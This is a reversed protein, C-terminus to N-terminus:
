IVCRTRTYPMTFFLLMLMYEMNPHLLGIAVAPSTVMVARAPKRSFSVRTCNTMLEEMEATTPMRWTSGWNATAADYNPNGSVDRMYVNNTKWNYGLYEPKTEIEGWSYYNGFAEPTDAGINCTAWKLGSPLGLDVYEHGNVENKCSAYAMAMVIICSLIKVMSKM